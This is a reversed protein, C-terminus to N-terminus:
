YEIGLEKSHGEMADLLDFIAEIDIILEPLYDNEVSGDKRLWEFLMRQLRHKAEKPEVLEMFSILEEYLGVPITPLPQSKKKRKM